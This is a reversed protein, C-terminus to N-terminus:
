LCELMVEEAKMFYYEEITEKISSNKFVTHHELKGYLRWLRKYGHHSEYTQMHFKKLIPKHKIFDHVFCEQQLREFM